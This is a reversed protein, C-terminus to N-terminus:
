LGPSSQDVDSSGMTATTSAASPVVEQHGSLLGNVLMALGLFGILGGVGVATGPKNGAFAIITALGMALGILMVGLSRQRNARRKGRPAAAGAEPTDRVFREFRAPDMEPSPVLGKEIMAIRERYALEKLRTRRHIALGGLVLGGVIATIPITLVLLFMFIQNM